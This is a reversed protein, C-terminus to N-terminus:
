TRGFRAPHARASGKLRRLFILVALTDTDKHKHNDIGNTASHRHREHCQERPAAKITGMCIQIYERGRERERERERESESEGERECVCVCM